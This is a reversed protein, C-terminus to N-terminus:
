PATGAPLDVAAKTKPICSASHVYELRSQLESLPLIFFYRSFPTIHPNPKQNRGRLALLFCDGGAKLHKLSHGRVGLKYELSSCHQCESGLCVSPTESAGCAAPASGWQGGGKGKLTAYDIKQKIKAMEVVFASSQTLVLLRDRAKFGNRDYKIVPTM